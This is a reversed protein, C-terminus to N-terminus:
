ADRKNEEGHRNLLKWPGPVVTYTPGLFSLSKPMEPDHIHQMLRTDHRYNKVRLGMRGWLWSVDYLGNQFVKPVPSALWSEVINWAKLESTATAWYSRSPARWDVFPVCIAGASAAFGVCDIQGRMTEIDVALLNARSGIEDWWRQMDKLDPELWLNRPWPEVGRAAREIDETVRQMMRFDQIVHAPHLTPYVPVGPLVRTATMRAGQCEKISCEGTLAWTAAAGLTVVASPAFDGLEQALRAFAERHIPRLWGYGQAYWEAEGFSGERAETAPAFLRGFDDDDLREHWVNGIWHDSREWMHRRLGITDYEPHWGPPPDDTRSLGAGRLMQAFLRGSAGVFPLPSPLRLVRGADCEEAAPAEALFALRRPAM